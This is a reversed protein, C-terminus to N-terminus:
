LVCNSWWLALCDQLVRRLTGVCMATSQMDSVSHSMRAAVHTGIGRFLQECSTASHQLGTVIEGAPFNTPCGAGKSKIAAM